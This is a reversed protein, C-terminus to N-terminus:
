DLGSKRAVAQNAATILVSFPVVLGTMLKIQDIAQAALLDLGSLVPVGNHVAMSVLPTPWPHYLVDFVLNVKTMDLAWKIAVDAPVTSILETGVTDTSIVEIGWQAGDAALCTTKSDDRARVKVRSVGMEALAYVCSRATAGNGFIVVQSKAGVGEGELLRRIGSVDTNYISTTSTNGPTGTFIATNGVGLAATVEDPNGLEVIAQKCPMTVSLGRWNKGLGAVFDSVQDARVQHRDYTWDLGLWAYAAKHLCPSLSHAIPDGIM